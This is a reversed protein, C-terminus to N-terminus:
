EAPLGWVEIKTITIGNYTNIYLTDAHSGGEELSMDEILIEVTGNYTTGSAGVDAPSNFSKGGIAGIGNNPSFGGTGNVGTYLVVIKGDTFAMIEASKATSVYGKIVAGDQWEWYTAGTWTSDIEFKKELAPPVYESVTLTAKFSLDGVVGTWNSPKGVLNFYAREGEPVAGLNMFRWKYEKAENVITDPTGNQWEGIKEPEDAGEASYLVQGCFHAGVLGSAVKTVSLVIMYNKGTEVTFPIEDFYFNVEGKAFTYETGTDTDDDDDDSSSSDSSCGFVGLGFVLVVALLILWVKKMM